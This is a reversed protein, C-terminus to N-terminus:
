PQIDSIRLKARFYLLFYYSCFPVLLFCGVNEDVGGRLFPGDKLIAAVEDKVMEYEHLQNGGKCEPSCLSDQYKCRM